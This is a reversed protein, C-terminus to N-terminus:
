EHKRKLFFNELFMPAYEGVFRRKEHDFNGFGNKPIVAYSLTLNVRKCAQMATKNLQRTSLASM